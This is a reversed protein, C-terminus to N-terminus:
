KEEAKSAAEAMEKAIEQIESQNIESKSTAALLKALSRSLEAAKTQSVNTSPDTTLGGAWCAGWCGGYWCAGWCGVKAAFGLERASKPEDIVKFGM